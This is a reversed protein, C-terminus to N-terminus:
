RAVDVRARAAPVNAARPVHPLPPPRRPLARPARPPDGPAVTRAAPRRPAPRNEGRGGSERLRLHQLFAFSILSLLAHHHLGTWTRGEFHDLGLEEKLQQHAQECAWRAKVAGALQRLTANPGLNSLYYKTEGSDRREGVLWVAEGPLHQGTANPTGDAAVM